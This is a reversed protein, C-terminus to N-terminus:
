RAVHTCIEFAVCRLNFCCFTKPLIRHTSRTPTCPTAHYPELFTNTYIYIYSTLLMMTGVHSKEFNLANDCLLCNCMIQSPMTLCLKM